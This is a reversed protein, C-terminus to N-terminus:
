TKRKILRKLFVEGTDTRFHLKRGVAGGTDEAMIKLGAESLAARAASLNQQGVSHLVKKKTLSAIMDAGGFLKVQIDGVAIRYRRIWRIMESVACGVYKYPELCGSTCAEPHRCAPLMAHCIGAIGLAQGYMTVAVCSGLVTTVVAPADIFCAQGPKLYINQINADTFKV